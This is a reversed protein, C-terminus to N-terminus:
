ASLRRCQWLWSRAARGWGAATHIHISKTTIFSVALTFVVALLFVRLVSVRGLRLLLFAKVAPLGAVPLQLAPLECCVGLDVESPFGRLMSSNPDEVLQQVAPKLQISACVEVCM